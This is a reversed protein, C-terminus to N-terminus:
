FARSHSDIPKLYIKGEALVWGLIPLNWHQLYFIFNKFSSHSLEWEENLFKLIKLYIKEMSNRFELDYSDIKEGPVYSEFVESYSYCFDM